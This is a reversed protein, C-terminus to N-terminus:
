RTKSSRSKDYIQATAFQAQKIYGRLDGKRKRLESLALKTIHQKLEEAATALRSQQESIKDVYVKKFTKSMNQIKYISSTWRKLKNKLRVLDLYNTIIAQFENSEYLGQLYRAEATMPLITHDTLKHPETNGMSSLIKETAKGKKVSRIVSDLKKLEANYINIASRYQQAAQEFGGLEAYAYPVALMSELVTSDSKNRESLELWAALSPKYKNLESYVLGLHMLAKNALPSELRIKQLHEKAEEPDKNKLYIYALTYNARDKLAKMEENSADIRAVAQLKNIGREENGSKVLMVGLNYRGFAAWDSSGRTKELEDIAEPFKNQKMLIQANFVERERSLKNSVENDMSYVATQAKKINGARFYAKAVEMWLINKNRTEDKPMKKPLANLIKEAEDHMRYKLYLFALLLEAQLQEKDKKNRWREAMLQGIASSYKGQYLDFLAARIYPSRANEIKFDERDAFSNSSFFLLAICLLFSTSKPKIILPLNIRSDM